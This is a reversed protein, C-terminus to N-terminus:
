ALHYHWLSLRAACLYFCTSPNAICETHQSLKKGSTPPSPTWPPPFVVFAQIGCTTKSGGSKIHQTHQCTSAVFRSSPRAYAMLFIRMDACFGCSLWLIRRSTAVSDRSCCVCTTLYKWTVCVSREGSYPMPTTRLASEIPLGYRM